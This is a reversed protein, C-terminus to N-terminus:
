MYQRGKDMRPEKTRISAVASQDNAMMSYEATSRGEMITQIRAQDNPLVVVEDQGGIEPMSIVTDFRQGFGDSLYDSATTSRHSDPTRMPGEIHRSDFGSQETENGVSAHQLSKLFSRLCKEDLV